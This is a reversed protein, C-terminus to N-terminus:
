ALEEMEAMFAALHEEPVDGVRTGHYKKILAKVDDRKGGQIKVIALKQVEDRTPIPTADPAADSDPKPAETAPETTHATLEEAKAPAASVTAGAASNIGRLADALSTIADLLKKDATIKIEM